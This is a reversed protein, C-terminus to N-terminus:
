GNGPWGRGPAPQGPWPSVPWPTGPWAPGPWATGRWATGHWTAGHWAPVNGAPGQRTTQQWGTEPWGSADSGVRSAGTGDSSAHQPGAQQGRGCQVARTSRIGAASTVGAVPVRARRRCAERGAVATARFGDTRNAAAILVEMCAPGSAAICNRGGAGAGRLRAALAPNPPAALSPASSQRAPRSPTPLAGPSADARQRATRDRHGAAPPEVPRSAPAAPSASSSPASSSPASPARPASSARPASPARHASSSPASSARPASPAPTGLSPPPGLAGAAVRHGDATRPGTGPGLTLAYAAIGAVALMTGAALAYQRPSSRRLKGPLWSAAAGATTGTRATKGAAPFALSGPSDALGAPGPSGALYAAAADGLILPAVTGRLAAGVDALDAEGGGSDAPARHLYAQRLGDRAHGALGTVGAADLGLLPAVESPAAREIETHWLVARWREPLSLFAAVLSSDQTGAAALGSPRGPGSVQQGHGPVGLSQGDGPIQGDGSDSGIAAQRVATLLYPRLADTPGGGHGIADLVTTFASAVVDDAAAPGTVLQRALRRVATAHRARLMGYAGHDGSRIANLLEADSAPVSVSSSEDM